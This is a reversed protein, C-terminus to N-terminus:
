TTRYTTIGYARGTYGQPTFVGGTTLAVRPTYASTTSQASVPIYTQTVPTFGAPLSEPADADLGNIRLEVVRGVKRAQWGKGSTIAERPQIKSLGVAVM